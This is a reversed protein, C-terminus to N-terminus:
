CVVTGLREATVEPFEVWRCTACAEGGVAEYLQRMQVPPLVEDQARPTVRNAM